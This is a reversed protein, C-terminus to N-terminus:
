PVFRMKQTEEHHVSRYSVLREIWNHEYDLPRSVPIRLFFYKQYHDLFLKRTTGSQATLQQTEPSYFICKM